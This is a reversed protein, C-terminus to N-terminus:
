GITRCARSITSFPWSPSIRRTWASYGCSQGGAVDARVGVVEGAEDGPQFEVAERGVEIGEDFAAAEVVVRM